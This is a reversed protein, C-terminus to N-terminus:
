EKEELTIQKEESNTAEDTMKESEIDDEEIAMPDAMKDGYLEPYENMCSVFEIFKEM